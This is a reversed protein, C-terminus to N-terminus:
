VKIKGFSHKEAVAGKYGLYVHKTRCMQLITHIRRNYSVVAKHGKEKRKISQLNM